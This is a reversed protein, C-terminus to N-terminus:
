VAQQELMARYRGPHAVLEPHTGREAIRGNVLVLIEDFAELGVLGHTILLVGLGASATVLDRVLAAGSAADLHATPEDLVVIRADSLLARALAVRQRQGGSVQAGEQGVDTDM